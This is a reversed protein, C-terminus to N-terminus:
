ATTAQHTQPQHVPSGPGVTASALPASLVAGNWSQLTLAFSVDIPNASMQYYALETVDVPRNVQFVLSIVPAHLGWGGLSDANGLVGSDVPTLALSGSQAYANTVVVCLAAMPCLSRLAFESRNMPM